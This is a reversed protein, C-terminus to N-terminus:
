EAQTAKVVLEATDTYSTIVVRAATFGAEATTLIDATEASLGSVHNTWTASNQDAFSGTDNVDDLTFEVGMSLTGTVGVEWLSSHGGQWDFHVTKSAIEDVWGLDFTDGGITASPTASTLTLFYKISTVTASGAPGTVTETQTVGNADTGVLVITKGSHDNATDNRISVRHALDDGSVNATLTFAAGTVNSAYGILNANAPDM